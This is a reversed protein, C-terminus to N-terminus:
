QQGQNTTFFSELVTLILIHWDFHGFFLWDSCANHRVMCNFCRSRCWYHHRQSVFSVIMFILLKLFPWDKASGLNFRSMPLVKKLYLPGSAHSRVELGMKFLGRGSLNILIM